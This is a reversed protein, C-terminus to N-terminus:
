RAPQAPISKEPVPRVTPVPHHLQFYLWLGGGILILLSMTLANRRRETGKDPRPQFVRRDM